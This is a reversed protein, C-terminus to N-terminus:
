RPKWDSSTPGPVAIPPLRKADPPLQPKLLTPVAELEKEPFGAKSLYQRALLNPDTLAPPETRRRRDLGLKDVEALYALQADGLQGSDRGIPVAPPPEHSDSGSVAAHEQREQTMKGLELALVSALQGDTECRDLLGITVVIRRLGHHAISPQPDQKLVLVSKVPIQANTLQLRDLVRQARALEPHEASAAAPKIGRTLATKPPPQYNTPPPSAPTAMSLPDLVQCGALAVVLVCLGARKWASHPSLIGQQVM